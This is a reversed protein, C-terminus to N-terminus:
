NNMIKIIEESINKDNELNDQFSEINKSVINNIDQEANKLLEAIKNASTSKIKKKLNQHEIEKTVNTKQDNITVISPSIKSFNNEIERILVEQESLLMDVNTFKEMEVKRFYLLVTGCIIFFFILIIVGFYKDIFMNIKKKM